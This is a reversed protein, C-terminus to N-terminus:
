LYKILRLTIITFIKSKTYNKDALCAIYKCSKPIITTIKYYDMKVPPTSNGICFVKLIM